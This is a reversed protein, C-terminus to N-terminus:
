PDSLGNWVDEPHNYQYKIKLQMDVSYILPFYSKKEFLYGTNKVYMNM